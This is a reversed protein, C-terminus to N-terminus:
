RAIVFRKSLSQLNGNNLRLFYVGEKLDSTNIKVVKEKFEIEEERVLQGLSNYISLRNLSGFLKEAAGNSADIKLELMDNAPVPYLKLQENLFSLENLGM